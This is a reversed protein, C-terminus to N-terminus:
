QENIRRAEDQAEIIALGRDWALQELTGGWAYCVALEARPDFGEQPDPREPLETVQHPPAIAVTETVVM